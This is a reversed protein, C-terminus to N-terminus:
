DFQKPDLVEDPGDEPFREDKVRECSVIGADRWPPLPTDAGAIYRVALGFAGAALERALGEDVARVVAEGKHTSAIWNAHGTDIPILKWLPM